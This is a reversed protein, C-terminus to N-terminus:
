PVWQLKFMASGNDVGGKFSPVMPDTSRTNFAEWQGDHVGMQQAAEDTYNMAYPQSQGDGYRVDLQHQTPPLPPNYPAFALCPVSGAVLATSACALICILTPTPRMKVIFRQLGKLHQLKKQFDSLERKGFAQRTRLSRDLNAAM